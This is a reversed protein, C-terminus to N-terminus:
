HEQHHVQIEKQELKDFFNFFKTKVKNVNATYNPDKPDKGSIDVKMSTLIENFEKEENPQEEYKKGFIEM